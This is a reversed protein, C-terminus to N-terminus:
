GTARVSKRKKKKKLCVWATWCAFLRLWNLGWLKMRCGPGAIEDGIAHRAATNGLSIPSLHTQWHSPSLSLSLSNCLFPSFSLLPSSFLFFPLPSLAPRCPVPLFTTAAHWSRILANTQGRHTLFLSQCHLHEWWWTCACLRACRERHIDARSGPVLWCILSLVQVSCGGVVLGEIVPSGRFDETWVLM